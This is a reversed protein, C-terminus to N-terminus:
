KKKKDKKDKKAKSAKDAVPDEKKRSRKGKKKAEPPNEAKEKKRQVLMENLKEKAAIAGLTGHIQRLSAKLQRLKPDKQIRGSDLGQEKLAERRKSIATEYYEKQAERVSKSKSPM